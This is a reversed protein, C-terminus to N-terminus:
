WRPVLWDCRSRLQDSSVLDIAFGRWVASAARHEEEEMAHEITTALVAWGIPIPHPWYERYSSALIRGAWSRSSLAGVLAAGISSTRMTRQAARALSLILYADDRWPDHTPSAAEWDVLRVRRRHWLVNGSAVDGHQWLPTWQANSAQLAHAFEELRERLEPALDGLLAFRQIRTAIFQGDRPQRNSRGAKSLSRSWDRVGELHSQLRRKDGWRPVAPTLDPLSARRGRVATIALATLEPEELLDLHRPPPHDLFGELEREALDLVRAERPLHRAGEETTALKVVISPWRERGRFVMLTSRGPRRGVLVSLRVPGLQEGGHLDPYSARLWSRIHSVISTNVGDSGYSTGALFM